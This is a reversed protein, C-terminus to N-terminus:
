RAKWVALDFEPDFRFIGRYLSAEELEGNRRLELYTRAVEEWNTKPASWM